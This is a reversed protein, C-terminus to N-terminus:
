LIVDPYTGHPQADSDRGGLAAGAYVVEVAPQGLVGVHRARGCHRQHTGSLMDM